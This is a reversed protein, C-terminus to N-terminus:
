SAKANIIKLPAKGANHVKFIHSVESEQQVNGFDFSKEPFEIVPFDGSVLNNAKVQSKNMVDTNKPNKTQGKEQASLVTFAAILFIVMLGAPIAIKYKKPM